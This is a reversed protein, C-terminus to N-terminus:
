GLVSASRTQLIHSLDDSSSFCIESEFGHNMSERYTTSYGIGVMHKPATVSTGPPVLWLGFGSVERDSRDAAQEIFWKSSHHVELRRTDCRVEACEFAFADAVHALEALDLDVLQGRVVAHRGGVVRRHPAAHVYGFGNDATVDVGPDSQLVHLHNLQLFPELGM